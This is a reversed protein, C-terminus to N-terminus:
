ARACATPQARLQDLAGLACGSTARSRARRPHLDRPEVPEARRREIEHEVPRIEVQDRARRARALRDHHLDPGCRSTSSASTTAVTCAFPLPPMASTCDTISTSRSPRSPAAGDRSPRRCRRDSARARRDREGRDRAARADDLLPERQAGVAPATSRRPRRPRERSRAPTPTAPRRGRSSRRVLVREPSDDACSTSHAGCPTGSRCRRDREHQRLVDLAAIGLPSHSRMTSRSCHVRRRPRAM